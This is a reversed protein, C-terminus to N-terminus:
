VQAAAENVVGEPKVADLHREIHMADVLTVIGDLMAFDRITGDILFTQARPFYTHSSPQLPPDPPVLRRAM